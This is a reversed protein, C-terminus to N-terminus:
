KPQVIDQNENGTDRGLLGLTHLVFLTTAGLIVVVLLAVLMGRGGKPKQTPTPATAEPMPELDTAASSVPSGYLPDDDGELVSELSTVEPTESDFTVHDREVGDTTLLENTWKSPDIFEDPNLASGGEDGSDEGKREYDKSDLSTFKNVEEFILQDIVGRTRDNRPKTSEREALCRRVLQAIDRSTVKMGRAFLFQALADQLEYAHQYRQDKDRALAKRVIQDLKAPIQPNIATLSPVNAKRVLEVTQYDTEGLFLRRGTLLEFLIIGVAFIDARADLPAASAAEPSLYSFKGKVVGPDTQEVQSAAKALGFDVLKVEGNRSLLINPPSVDRHVINLSDGTEPSLMDHAYGLGKCVEMMMFIAEEIKVPQGIRRMSENVSRLNPGNVYEMVIFYTNGSRGIDFVHVINAHDLYLSLRAEDLFMAVFKENKTLHPLIRKIAVTKKLGQIMEAEARYIEAMGGSDLKDIIRYKQDPPRM